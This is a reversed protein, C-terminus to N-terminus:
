LETILDPPTLSFIISATPQAFQERQTPGSVLFLHNFFIIFLIQLHFNCWSLGSRRDKEYNGILVSEALAGQCLYLIRLSIALFETNPSFTHKEWKSLFIFRDM